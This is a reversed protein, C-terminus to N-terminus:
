QLNRRQKLEALLEPDSIWKALTKMASSLDKEKARDFGVLMAVIERQLPVPFSTEGMAACYDSYKEDLYARRKKWNDKENWEFEMSQANEKAQRRKEEELAAKAASAEQRRQEELRMRALEEEQKRQKELEIKETGTLVIEEFWGYGAATKAGAGNVMMAGRLMEVAWAMDVDDALPVLQFVYRGGAEVVPFTQPNPEENDLAKDFTGDYYKMHHCTVIDLVIDPKAEPFAALFAVKGAFAASKGKPNFTDPAIERLYDDLGDKPKSDGTPFGFTQAIKLALSRKKEEDTETNWQEWAYHRACGKVASGPLYPLGINRHLCMGANELVGGALNVILRGGLQLCVSRSGAHRFFMAGSTSARKYCDRFAKIQDSKNTQSDNIEVFKDLFLSPSDAIGAANLDQLQKTLM